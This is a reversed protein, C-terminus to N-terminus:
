FRERLNDFLSFRKKPQEEEEIGFYAPFLRQADETTLSDAANLDMKTWANDNTVMEALSSDYSGGEGLYYRDGGESNVYRAPVTYLNEQSEYGDKRDTNRAVPFGSRWDFGGAGEYLNSM